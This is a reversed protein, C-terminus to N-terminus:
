RLMPWLSALLLGAMTLNFIRLRGPQALWTRLMVGFGTWVSISPINVIFFVAAILGVSALPWVPDTYAATAAFCTVWAKPNVWQFAAAQMFSMPQGRSAADGPGGAGAIRWALYVLYSAGALKLALHLSPMATLLAGLGLGVCGLLLVFGVGVGLMHPVTRRFGFNAGSALLMLNNPGPTFSAAFAFLTLAVLAEPRLVSSM